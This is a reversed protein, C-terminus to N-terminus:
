DPPISCYVRSSKWAERNQEEEEPHLSLVSSLFGTVVVTSVSLFLLILPNMRGTPLADSQQSMLMYLTMCDMEKADERRMRRTPLAETQPSLTLLLLLLVGCSLAAQLVVSKMKAAVCISSSQSQPSAVDSAKFLRIILSSWIRRDSNRTCTDHTDILIATPCCFAKRTDSLSHKTDAAIVFMRCSIVHTFASYQIICVRAIYVHIYHPEIAPSCLPANGSQEWYETKINSSIRLSTLLHCSLYMYVKWSM